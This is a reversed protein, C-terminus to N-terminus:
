ALNNRLSRLASRAKRILSHEMSFQAAELQVEVAGFGEKFRRLGSAEEAAGGLNFVQLGEDRLCSVIGAVLFHSAGAAMGEPSTGASQYYAGAQGRLVFLSSAVEHGSVAQFLEGARSRILAAYRDLDSGTPVTEGRAARRHLSTHVLRDHVTCADVEQTRRLAIGQTRARAVNRRHNSSLRRLPDPGQLALVFERRGRRAIEGALHPISIPTSMAGSGYSDATLLPVGERRCFTLLGNWFAESDPIAPLSPIELRGRLRGRRLYAPCAVVFTAGSWVGLIVPEDGLARRAAVYAPAFFPNRPESEAVASLLAPAPDREARFTGTRM